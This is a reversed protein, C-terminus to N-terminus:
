IKWAKTQFGTLEEDLRDDLSFSYFIFYFFGTLNISFWFMLSLLFYFFCVCVASRWLSFSQSFYTDVMSSTPEWGVVILDTSYKGLSFRNLTEIWWEWDEFVKPSGLIKFFFWFFILFLFLIFRVEIFKLGEEEIETLIIKKKRSFDDIM